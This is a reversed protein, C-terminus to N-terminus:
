RKKIRKALAPSWRTMQLLADKAKEAEEPDRQGQLWDLIRSGTEFCIERQAALPDVAQPKRTPRPDSWNSPGYHFINDIGGLFEKRVTASPDDLATQLLPIAERDARASALLGRVAALRMREDTHHLLDSFVSILQPAQVSIKEVLSRATGIYPGDKIPNENRSLMDLLARPSAAAIRRALRPLTAPDWKIRDLGFVAAERRAASRSSLDRLLPILRPDRDSWVCPIMMGWAKYERLRPVLKEVEPVLLPHDDPRGWLASWTGGRSSGEGVSALLHGEVAYFFNPTLGIRIEEFWDIGLLRNRTRPRQVNIDVVDFLKGRQWRRAFIM